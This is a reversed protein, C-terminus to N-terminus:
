VTSKDAVSEASHATKGNKHNTHGNGNRPQIVGYGG